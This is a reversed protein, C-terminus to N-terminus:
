AKHREPSPAHVFGIKLRAVFDRLKAAEQVPLALAVHGDPRVLYAADRRLGARQAFGSWVFVHLPLNLAEAADRFNPDVDGYIHLQWDLSRLPAFNDKGRRGIWPLRDGGHIAGAKGESLASGRYNIRTQSVTRFILKRFWRSGFLAPMLHPLLWTRLLQGRRGEAIPVRFATDTTSVLKRAFAIREAEYTDLISPDARGRLVAALKWGLNVADGIGTNMGQGGAPSHIHGADGAIFCRDVRFHAAVRHHSQYTSFWNVSEVRTGILSEATPRVDEFTLNTRETLQEPVLGILRQMGSSRVPLMLAFAKPGVNMFGDTTFPGAIKTDAVYFLQAYTGGPFGLALDRRIRSHVGDCGCLYDALCEEEAGNKGLLARVGSDTQSVRKLEVGWEISIGAVQLQGVLFHEHDDQPYTLVFPFPSSEEGIDKFSLSAIEAGGQRLHMTEMRIGRAVVEDAFGLQQYFELTRAHVAMARSAQGPGSAKDVIRFPVDHRALQLALVLGTPGAGIILVKTVSM